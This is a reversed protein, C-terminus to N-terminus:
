SKFGNPSIQFIMDTRCSAKWHLTQTLSMCCVNFNTYLCIKNLQIQCKTRCIVNGKGKTIIVLDLDFEGDVATGQGLSGGKIVEMPTIDTEDEFTTQWYYLM